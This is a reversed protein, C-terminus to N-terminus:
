LASPRARNPASGYRYLPNEGTYPTIEVRGEVAHLGVNAPTRQM